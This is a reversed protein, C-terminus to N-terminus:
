AWRLLFLVRDSESDFTIVMGQQHDIGRPLHELMWNLIEREHSDWWYYDSIILILDGYIETPVVFRIKSV